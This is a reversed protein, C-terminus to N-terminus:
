TKLSRSFITLQHRIRFPSAWDIENLSQATVSSVSTGYRHCPISSFIATDTVIHMMKQFHELHEVLGEHTEHKAILFEFFQAKATGSMANLVAAAVDGGVDTMYAHILQHYRIELINWEIAIEGLAKALDFPLPKLLRPKDRKRSRKRRRAM